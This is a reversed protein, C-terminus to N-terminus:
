KDSIDGVAYFDKYWRIFRSIGETHSTNPKYDFDEILGTVDAYTAPVDGPQLPLMEKKAEISLNLEIAEIFDLLKVPNNNGINYVKYPAKSYSPNPTKGSWSHNEKPTNFLVKKIGEVIDDMYTFDRLMDGNNFVKIPEGKIIRETFLALAM